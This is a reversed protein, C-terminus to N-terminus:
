AHVPPARSPIRNSNESPPPFEHKLKYAPKKAFLKLEFDINQFTHIFVPLAQKIDSTIGSKTRIFAEDLQAFSFFDHQRDNSNEEDPHHHKGPETEDHHQEHAISTEENHHIHPFINHGMVMMVAVFLIVKQLVKLM